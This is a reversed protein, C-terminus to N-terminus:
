CSELRGNKLWGHWSGKLHLSPSLSLTEPKAPDGTMKWSPYGGPLNPRDGCYVSLGGSWSGDPFVLYIFEVEGDENLDHDTWMDGPKAEGEAPPTEHYTVDCSDRNESM